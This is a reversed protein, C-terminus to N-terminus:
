ETPCPWAEKLAALVLSEATYSRDAPNNKLWLYVVDKIQKLTVGSQFCTNENVGAVDAIASVYGMAIGCQYVNGTEGDRDIKECNQLDSYLANGNKFVAFSVNALLCLLAILAFRKM